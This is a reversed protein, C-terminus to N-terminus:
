RWPHDDATDSRTAWVSKCMASPGTASVIPGDSPDRKRHQNSGHSGRKRFGLLFLVAYPSREPYTLDTRVDAASKGTLHLQLAFRSSVDVRGTTPAAGGCYPAQAPSILPLWVPECNPVIVLDEFGRHQGSHVADLGVSM